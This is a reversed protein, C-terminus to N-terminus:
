SDAENGFSNHYEIKGDLIDQYHQQKYMIFDVNKEIREIEQRLNQLKTDLIAQREPITEKGQRCLAVFRKIESIIMGCNKLCSLNRAWELNEETFIRYNNSDRKLGPLQGENCYLKLTHYPMGIQDATEKLAYLM